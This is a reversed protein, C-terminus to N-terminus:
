NWPQNCNIGCLRTVVQTLAIIGLSNLPALLLVRYFFFAPCSVVIIHLYSPRKPKWLPKKKAVEASSRIQIASECCWSFNYSRLSIPEDFMNVIIEFLICVSLNLKKM